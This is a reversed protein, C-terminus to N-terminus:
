VGEFLQIKEGEKLTIIAKKWNSRKGTYKGVRRYKGRIRCTRVDIVHVKFLAEVAQRIQHKNSTLGVEFSYQHYAERLLNGKETILPRKIIGFSDM